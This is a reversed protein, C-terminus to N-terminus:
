SSPRPNFLFPFSSAQQLRSFANSCGLSSGLRLVQAPTPSRLTFTSTNKREPRRHHSLDLTSRRLFALTTSLSSVGSRRRLSPFTSDADPPFSLSSRLLKSVDISMHINRVPATTTFKIANSLLNSSSFLSCFTLISGKKKKFNLSM